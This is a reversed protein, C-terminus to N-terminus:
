YENDSKSSNHSTSIVETGKVETTEMTQRYLQQHQLMLHFVAYKRSHYRSICVCWLNGVQKNKIVYWCNIAYCWTCEHTLTALIFNSYFLSTNYYFNNEVTFM